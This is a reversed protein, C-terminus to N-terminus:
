SISRVSVSVIENDNPHWSCDYVECDDKTFEKVIEGTVIDFISICGINSGCYIYRHGTRRPSFKVRWFIASPNQKKITLAKDFHPIDGWLNSEQQKQQIDFSIVESFQRVDLIDFKVGGSTTVIYRDFSDGDIHTIAYDNTSSSALPIFKNSTRSDWMKCFGDSCGSYFLNPNAKSCHIAKVDNEHGDFSYHAHKDVAVVSIRGGARGVVLNQDDMTYCVSFYADRRRPIREQSPHFRNWQLLGDNIQDISCHYVSTDSTHGLLGSRSSRAYANSTTYALQDGKTSRAFDTIFGNNPIGIRDVFQYRPPQRLYFRLSKDQGITVFRENPLHICRFLGSNLKYIDIWKNPLFRNVLNAKESLTFANSKSSTHYSIPKEPASSTNPMFSKHHSISRMRKGIERNKIMRGIFMGSLSAGSSTATWQKLDSM